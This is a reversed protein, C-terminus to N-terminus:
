RCARQSPWCRRPTTPGLARTVAFGALVVDRRRTADLGLRCTVVGGPRQRDLAPELPLTRLGELVLTDRDAQYRTSM